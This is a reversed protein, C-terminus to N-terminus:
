RSSRAKKSLDYQVSVAYVHRIQWRTEKLVHDIMQRIADPGSDAEVVIASPKEGTEYESFIVAWKM